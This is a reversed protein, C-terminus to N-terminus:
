DRSRYTRVKLRLQHEISIYLALVLGVWICLMGVFPYGLKSSVASVALSILLTVALRADDILLGWIVKLANNM